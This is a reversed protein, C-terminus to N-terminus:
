DPSSDLPIKGATLTKGVGPEGHLLFILGKGKGKILDDFESKKGQHEKILSNILDKQYEPLVLGDFATHNFEIREIASVKFLGWRKVVLSFGPIMHDCVLIEDDTLQLHEGKAGDIVKSGPNFNTAGLRVNRRYEKCDVIIREQTPVYTSSLDDQDTSLQLMMGKYFRYHVGLLTLYYRGRTLIESEIRESEAHYRFPFINLDRLARYGDYHKIHVYMSTYGFNDGDCIIGEIKLEWYRSEKFQVQGLGEPKFDTMSQLRCAIDESDVQRYLIDGPRFAMWLNEFELGPETNNGEMLTEYSNIEQRMSRKMYRLLFEVHEEVDADNSADAYAKLENRYHFVCRPDDQMKLPGTTNLSIGPYSKVVNQLATKMYPSNIQLTTHKLTRQDSYSRTLVLAADRSRGMDFSLSEIAGVQLSVYEGRTNFRNEYVHLECIEGIDNDPAADLGALPDRDDDGNNDDYSDKDEEDDNDDNSDDDNAEHNDNTAKHNNDNAEHNENNAEHNNDNAEHNNGNAEQNENNAEHNNDNAEHNDDNAKHNHNDENKNEKGDTVHMSSDLGFEHSPDADVVPPKSSVPDHPPTTDLPNYFNADVKDQKSSEHQLLHSSSM